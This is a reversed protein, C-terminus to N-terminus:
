RRRPLRRRRSLHEQRAPGILRLGSDVGLALADAHDHLLQVQDAIQRDGLVDEDLPQRASQSEDLVRRSCWAARSAISFTPRASTSGAVGTRAKPTPRWCITSIAAPNDRRHRTRARSSGVAERVCLSTSSSKVCIRLSLASPTPMM